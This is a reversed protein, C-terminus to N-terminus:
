GVLLSSSVPMEVVVVGATDLLWEQRRGRPPTIRDAVISELSAESEKRRAPRPQQPMVLLNTTVQSYCVVDEKYGVGSQDALM